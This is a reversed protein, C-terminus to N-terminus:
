KSWSMIRFVSKPLKRSYSRTTTLALGDKHWTWGKSKRVFAFKAGHYTTLAEAAM